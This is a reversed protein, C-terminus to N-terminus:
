VGFHDYLLHKISGVSKCTLFHEEIPTFDTEYESEIGLLIEMVDEEDMAIRSLLMEDRIKDKPIDCFESVLQNVNDNIMQKSPNKM